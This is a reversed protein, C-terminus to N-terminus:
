IPLDDATVESGYSTIMPLLEAMAKNNLTSTFDSIFETDSVTTVKEIILNKDADRTFVYCPITKIYIKGKEQERICRFGMPEHGSVVYLKQRGPSGKMRYRNAFFYDPNMAHVTKGTSALSGDPNRVQMGTGGGEYANVSNLIAADDFNVYAQGDKEALPEISDAKEFLERMQERKSMKGNGKKNKKCNKLNGLNTTYKKM